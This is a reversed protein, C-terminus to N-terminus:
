AVEKSKIAYLKTILPKTFYRYIRKEAQARSSAVLEVRITLGEDSAKPQLPCIEAVYLRFKM